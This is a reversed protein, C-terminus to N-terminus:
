PRLAVRCSLDKLTGNTKTWGFVQCIKRSLPTRKLSPEERIWQRIQDIEQDKFDRGSYRKMLSGPDHSPVPSGAPRFLNDLPALPVPRFPPAAGPVRRSIIPSSPNQSLPGREGLTPPGWSPVGKKRGKARPHRPVPILSGASGQESKKVDLVEKLRRIEAKLAENGERSKELLKRNHRTQCKWYSANQKPTVSLDWSDTM